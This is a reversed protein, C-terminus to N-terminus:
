EGVDKADATTSQVLELEAHRDAAVDVAAQTVAAGVKLVGESVRIRSLENVRSIDILVRPQSLRMNLAAMLSQGGALVRADDGYEGLLEVIEATTDARIYDFPAPKMNESSVRAQDM